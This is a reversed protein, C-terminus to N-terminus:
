NQCLSAPQVEAPTAIAAKDAMWAEAEPVTPVDKRVRKGAVNADAQFSRGRSRIAM